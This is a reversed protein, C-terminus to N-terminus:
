VAESSEIEPEIRRECVQQLYSQIEAVEDNYYKLKNHM